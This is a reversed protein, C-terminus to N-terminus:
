DTLNMRLDSSMARRWSTTGTLSAGGGVNCNCRCSPGTRRMLALRDSRSTPAWCPCSRPPMDKFARTVSARTIEGKITRLVRVFVLAAVYGGQSLSTRAVKGRTMVNRWDTLMGSRSSWPEFESLAFMGEGKAGLTEAINATYAPTLFVWDILRSLVEPVSKMWEIVHPEIGTYIVGDCGADIAEKVKEALRQDPAMGVTSRWVTRGSRQSWRDIERQFAPTQAPAYSTSYVCIRERRRVESLFQLGIANSLYPGVNVPSINASEFCSPDVGTGQISVLGGTEYLSGNVGCELASASGVNAVVQEVDMLHKAAAQAKVPDAEDDKTVLQLPRGNIGGEANVVDFYARVAAAAEPFLKVSSVAGVKIPPKVQAGVTQPLGAGLLALVTGLAVLQPKMLPTSSTQFLM